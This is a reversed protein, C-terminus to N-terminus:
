QICLAVNWVYATRIEVKAFHPNLFAHLSRASWHNLHGPTNGLDKLYALRAINMLRWWPENPVTILVLKKSTRKMESLGQLPNELHELVETAMVLDYSANPRDIAYITGETFPIQPYTKQAERVVKDDFEIGEIRSQPFARHMIATTHGEGCGVDLITRPAHPRITTMITTHFRQMLHRVIPNRSSHKDYYNGAINEM